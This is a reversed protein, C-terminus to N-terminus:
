SEAPATIEGREIALRLIVTHDEGHQFSPLGRIDFPEAQETIDTTYLFERCGCDWYENKYVHYVSVDQHELVLEPETWIYPMLGGGTEDDWHRRM